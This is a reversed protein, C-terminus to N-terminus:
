GCAVGVREPIPAVLGGEQVSVSLQEPAHAADFEYRHAGRHQIVRRVIARVAIAAVREALLVLAYPRM